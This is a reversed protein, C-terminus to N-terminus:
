KIEPLLKPVKQIEDIIMAHVSRRKVFGAPDNEAVEFLTSDDLTRFDGDPM